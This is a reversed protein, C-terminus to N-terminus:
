VFLDEYLTQLHPEESNEAFEVADDSIKRCAQDMKKYDEESFIKKEELIDRLILIPDQKRYDDVEERTRYTGPDSM